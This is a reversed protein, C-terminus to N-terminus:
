TPKIQFTKIHGCFCEERTFKMIGPVITRIENIYDVENKNLYNLIQPFYDNFNQYNIGDRILNKKLLIDFYKRLEYLEKLKNIMGSRILNAAGKKYQTQENIIGIKKTFFHYRLLLKLIGSNYKEKKNIPMM